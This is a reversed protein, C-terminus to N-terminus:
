ARLLDQCDYAFTFELPYLSPCVEPSPSACLPRIHQQVHPPLSNSIVPFSFLLSTGFIVEGLTRTILDRRDGLAKM